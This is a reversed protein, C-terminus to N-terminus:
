GWPNPADSGVAGKENFQKAFASGTDLEGGAGGNGGAPNWGKFTPKEEKEPVFLFSKSEQLSKLQEDLGKTVNGKDDLEILTKDVLGAVLEGDHVKGTLALKLATSLREDKLQQEYESKAMENAKQLETITVQLEENGKAKDQLDKLQTEHTKVQEELTKKANNVEDFRTKPVMQGFGDLISQAQEETLGLAILQEKNM